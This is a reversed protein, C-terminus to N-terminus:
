SSSLRREHLRAPARATTSSSSASSRRSRALIPVALTSRIQAGLISETQAVETPADAAIVAARETVVKRFVSRAVPIPAVDRQEQGRVRTAIPVYGSVGARGGEEDDDRLVVTAHTAQRVLGLCADAIALVVDHLDAAAGIAKQSEYLARMSGADTEVRSEAPAFDDLDEPDRRRAGGRRDHDRGRADRGPRGDGARRREDARLPVEDGWPTM